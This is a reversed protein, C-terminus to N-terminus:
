KAGSPLELVVTAGHGPASRLVLTGGLLAAREQMGTLGYSASQGVTRGPQFGAGNDRISLKINKDARNLLLKVKTAQSHKFVNQLAEQAVRYIVNQSETSMGAADASVGLRVQAQHQKGFRVALQRLAAELGLREVVAPSLAAITRRLELVICGTTARAAALRERLTAPADREMLELQMRLVALSQAADDHLERGIRRRELEEAQRAAAELRRLEQQTHVRDIAEFCRACAAHLLTLERPLWPYPTAFGLQLLACERVPFSWYSAYEGRLDPSVILQEDRQGREFYLPRALRGTLPTDLLHLRGAQAHFTRTLIGVLRVLLDDLDRAETEAHYLGFFAQAEAERVQYYAQNLLARTILQLQERAPAFRGDLAPELITGFEALLEAAEAPPVNLKALRRGNYEVQDFFLELTRLQAAAAPTIACVARVTLNDYPRQCLLARFKRDLRIAVPRIAALLLRLHRRAETTLFLNNKM